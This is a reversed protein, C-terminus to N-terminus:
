KLVSLPNIIKGNKYVGFHLHSGTSYGTSGMRAILQGRSVFSGKKVNFGNLHAYLTQYGSGHDILIFKGFDPSISVQIVRGSRSAYVPTNLINAIDVGNHFKKIGSIPDVRWGYGSTIIGRVPYIFLDGLAEELRIPNMHAGPLFLKQGLQLISTSLDNTDLISERTIKFKEALSALSDGSKVEYSIGNMNPIRIKYGSRLRKVDSINNYSILTEVLINYKVSILSLTDGEQLTYEEDKLVYTLINKGEDSAHITENFSSIDQSSGLYFLYTDLFSDEPLTLFRSLTGGGGLRFDLQSFPVLILFIGLSVFYAIDVPIFFSAWFHSKFNESNNKNLSYKRQKQSFSYTKDLGGFRFDLERKRIQQKQSPIM